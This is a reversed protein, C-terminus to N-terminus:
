GQLRHRGRRSLRGRRAGGDRWSGRAPEGRELEAAPHHGVAGLITPAIDCLSWLRGYEAKDAPKLERRPEDVLVLPVDNMSHQTSVSGDPFTLEEANGHDATVIVSVDRGWHVAGMIQELCHDVADVAAIVAERVGTHGVM